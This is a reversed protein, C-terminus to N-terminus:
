VNIANQKEGDQYANNYHRRVATIIDRHRMMMNWEGRLACFM